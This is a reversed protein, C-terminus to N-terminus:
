VVEVGFRRCRVGADRTEQRRGTGEEPATVVSVCGDLLWSTLYTEKPTM